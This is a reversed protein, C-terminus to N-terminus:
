ARPNGPRLFWSALAGGISALAVAVIMGFFLGATLGAPTFLGHISALMDPDSPNAGFRQSIKLLYDTYEQQGHFVFIWVTLLAANIAFAVIGAAGGLRLGLATPLIIGTKRRYFFVALGGTLVFGLLPIAAIFFGLVGAKLAASVAMGRDMLGPTLAARDPRGAQLMEPSPEDAAPNLSTAVPADPISIQV